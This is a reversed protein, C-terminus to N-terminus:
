YKKAEIKLDNIQAINLPMYEVDNVHTGSKEVILLKCGEEMAINHWVNKPVNYVVYPKVIDASFKIVNDKIAGSILVAKGKLLIFVEDTDHHVEMKNINNIHQEEFFNLQAIQWGERILFPNFGAEKVSYSEILSM